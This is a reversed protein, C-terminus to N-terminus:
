GIERELELLQDAVSQYDIEYKGSKIAQRIAEVRNQDFVPSSSVLEDLRSLLQASATLEVTDGTSRSGTSTSATSEVEVPHGADAKRGSGSVNVPTLGPGTIKQAV